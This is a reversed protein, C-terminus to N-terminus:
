SVYRLRLAQRPCTDAARRAHAALPPPVPIDRSPRGPPLEGDRATAARAADERSIPYGWRDQALVEPLLEVCWGRGDCATWDVTLLWSTPPKVAARTGSGAHTVTESQAPGRSSASWQPSGSSM